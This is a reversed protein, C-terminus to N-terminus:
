WGFKVIDNSLFLHDAKGVLFSLGTGVPCSTPWWFKSKTTALITGAVLLYQIENM